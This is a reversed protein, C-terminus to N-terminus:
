KREKLRMYEKCMFRVQGSFDREAEIALKEIEEATEKEFRISKVITEKNLYEM